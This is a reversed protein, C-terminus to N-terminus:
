HEKSLVELASIFQKNKEELLDVTNNYRAKKEELEKVAKSAKDDLTQKETV